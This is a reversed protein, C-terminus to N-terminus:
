SLNTMGDPVSLAGAVVLFTVHTSVDAIYLYILFFCSISVMDCVVPVYRLLCPLTQSMCSLSHSHWRTQACCLVSSHMWVYRSEISVVRILNRISQTLLSDYETFKCSLGSNDCVRSLGFTHCVLYEYPKGAIWDGVGRHIESMPRIHRWITCTSRTIKRFDGCDM